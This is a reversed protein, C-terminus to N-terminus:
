HKQSAFMKKATENLEIFRKDLEERSGLKRAEESFKYGIEQDGKKLREFTAQCYEDLPEGFAHSGGLNTQVAPPSLEYVQINPAEDKLQYRLAMTFSHLAAKTAPYIPIGALPIFALGSTVNIIATTKKLKRFHQIFLYSLHIPGSINIHIEKEREEWSINKSPDENAVFPHRTQIGANNILINTQPHEHIIWEYLASRENANEVDNVHYVVKKKGIRNLEEVAEKLQQERRGTIIVSAGAQVFCRAFGLGIGGSGGTILVTSSPIDLPESYRDDAM